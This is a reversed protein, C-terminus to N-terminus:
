RDARLGNRVFLIFIEEYYNYTTKHNINTQLKNDTLNNLWYDAYARSM